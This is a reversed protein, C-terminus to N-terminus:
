RFTHHSAYYGYTSYRVILSIIYKIVIQLHNLTELIMTLLILVLLMVLLHILFLLLIHFLLLM